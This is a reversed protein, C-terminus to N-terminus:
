NSDSAAESCHVHFWRLSMETAFAICSHVLTTATSLLAHGVLLGKNKVVLSYVFVIALNIPFKLTIVPNNETRITANSALFEVRYLQVRPDLYSFCFDPDDLRHLRCNVRARPQAPRYSGQDK